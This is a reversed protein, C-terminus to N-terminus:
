WQFVSSPQTYLVQNQLTFRLQQNFSTSYLKKDRLIERTIKYKAMLPPTRPTNFTIVTTHSYGCYEWPGQTKRLPTVTDL